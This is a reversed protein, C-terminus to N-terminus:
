GRFFRVLPMPHADAPRRFRQDCVRWPIFVAYGPGSNSYLPGTAAVKLGWLFRTFKPEPRTGDPIAQILLGPGSAYAQICGTHIRPPSYESRWAHNQPSAAQRFHTALGTAIWYFIMRGLALSPDARPATEAGSGLLPSYRLIMALVTLCATISRISVNGSSADTASITASNYKWRLTSSPSLCSSAPWPISWSVAFCRSRLHDLQDPGKASAANFLPPL